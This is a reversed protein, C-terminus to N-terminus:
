KKIIQKTITKNKHIIRLTYIGSPMKTIDLVNTNTKSIIIDGIYNYVNVDVNKNINIKGSTPNPYILIEDETERM